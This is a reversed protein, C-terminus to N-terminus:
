LKLHRSIALFSSLTGIVIGLTYMALTVLFIRDTVFTVVESANFYSTFLPKAVNILPLTIAMAITAGIVGYMAGEILFPGRIYWNTAGVLKMIEIEERRTFIAMRITNFIIMLSILLFAASIVTGVQSVGRSISVIRDVVKRRVDSDDNSTSAVITAAGDSKIQSNLSDLDELTATRVELSAPLPNGIDAATKALQEGDKSSNRLRELADTKSVYKVEKVNPMVQINAQLKKVQDPTAEDKLFVTLDIKDRVAALQNQLFLASFAFFAVIVLTVVMIATAAISLWANRFLNRFGTKFMRWLTIM